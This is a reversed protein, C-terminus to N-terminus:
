IQEAQDLLFVFGTFGESALAAGASPVFAGLDCVVGSELLSGGGKASGAVVYGVTHGSHCVPPRLVGGLPAVAAPYPYFDESYREGSSAVPDV